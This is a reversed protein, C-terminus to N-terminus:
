NDLDSNNDGMIVRDMGRHTEWPYVIYKATMEAYHDPRENGFLTRYPNFHLVCTYTNAGASAVRYKVSTITRGSGWVDDVVLVNKGRLLEDEPFQLFKPWVILRDDKKHRERTEWQAPFDVSATLVTTLNLSEALLGGPISGGRTIVVMAHFETDFKPILQDVLQTVDNWSLFVKPLNM